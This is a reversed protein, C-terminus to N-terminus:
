GGEDGQEAVHGFFTRVDVSYTALGVDLAAPLLPFDYLAPLKREAALQFIRDRYAYALGDGLVLLAGVRADRAVDFAAPLDGVQEPATQAGALKPGVAVALAPVSAPLDPPLM